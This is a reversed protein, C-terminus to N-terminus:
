SAPGQEKTRQADLEMATELAKGLRECRERSGREQAARRRASIEDPRLAADAALAAMQAEAETLAEVLTPQRHFSAAGASARVKMGDQAVRDLTM